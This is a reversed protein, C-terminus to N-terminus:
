KELIECWEYLAAQKETIYQSHNYVAMVGPMTHGLLQEVVHPAVGIDNLRTSFTRRLDHLTWPESHGLKKYISRGWQSVAEPKKLEGLLFGSKGNQEKLQTIFNRMQPPIPRIIRHGGKSHEKPVTWLWDSLDWEKWTSLRIEQSRAGFVILLRLMASYYTPFINKTTCAKWINLLEEKEHVRDRKGQKRGVDPISLDELVNSYAYRRVRCFKLAQKCMQFIYGAAVPAKSKARDFCEIWARTDCSSLPLNGIYPFIHRELQAKHRLYNARNDIAYNEIWYNLAQKVTVPNLSESSSLNYQDKPDLNDALWTKCKDRQQRAVSLSLDPYKGLVLTLPHQSKHPNRYRFLWLLNNPQPKGNEQVTKQSPTVRISLGGGDSITQQKAITTKALSRLKVDTLKDNAMMTVRM